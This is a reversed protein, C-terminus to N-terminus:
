RHASLFQLGSCPRTSSSWDLLESAAPVVLMLRSALQPVVLVLQSALRSVVLILWYALRSVVLLQPRWHHRAWLSWGLLEPAAPAVLM